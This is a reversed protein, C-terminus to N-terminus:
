GGKSGCVYDWLRLARRAYNWPLGNDAGATGVGNVRPGSRNSHPFPVNPTPLGLFTCLPEWGAGQTVDIVLLREPPVDRVVLRNHDRYRKLYLLPVVQASGYAYEQTRRAEELRASQGHLYEPVSVEYHQRVSRLWDMEPRVTLICKAEPYAELLERYFLAAPLDTVADVDDYRRFNPNETRGMIVDTLREPCWHLTRLGLQELATSLSLTGTRSLGAGIIKMTERSRHVM